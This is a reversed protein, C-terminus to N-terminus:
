QPLEFTGDAQGGAEDKKFWASVIGGPAEIAVFTYGLKKVEELLSGKITGNQSQVSVQDDFVAGIVYPPETNWRFKRLVKSVRVCEQAYDDGEQIYSRKGLLVDEPVPQTRAAAPPAPVAKPPAKVAPAKREPARVEEGQPRVTVPEPVVEPASPPSDIMTAVDISLDVKDPTWVYTLRSSDDYFVGSELFGNLENIKSIDFSKTFRERGNAIGFIKVARESGEDVVDVVLNGLRIRDEPLVQTSPAEDQVEVPEEPEPLPEEIRIEVPAEVPDAAPKEVMEVIRPPAVPDGREQEASGASGKVQIKHGRHNLKFYNVGQATFYSKTINCDLCTVEYLDSNETTMM